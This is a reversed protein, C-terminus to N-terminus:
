MEPSLSSRLWYRRTNSLLPQASGRLAELVGPYLPDSRLKFLSYFYDGRPGWPRQPAFARAIARAADGDM